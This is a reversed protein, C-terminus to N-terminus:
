RKRERRRAARVARRKRKRLERHAPQTSKGSLTGHRCEGCAGLLSVAAKVTAMPDDTEIEVGHYWDGGCKPCVTRFWRVGDLDPPGNM